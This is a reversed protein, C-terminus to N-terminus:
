QVRQGGGAGAAIPAVVRAVGRHVHVLDGAARQPPDEVVDLPDPHREHERPQVFGPDVKEVRSRVRQDVHARVAGATQDDHGRDDEVALLDGELPELQDAPRFRRARVPPGSGVVCDGHELVTSQRQGLEILREAGLRCRQQPSSALDVNRGPLHLLEPPLVVRAQRGPNGRPRPVARDLQGRWRPRYQLQGDPRARPM